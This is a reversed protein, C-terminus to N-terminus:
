ADAERRRGEGHVYPALAERLMLRARHVRVKLASESIGLEAAAEKTSLGEVERLVFATRLTDPLAAIARDVMERLEAGIVARSPETTRDVLAQPLPSRRQLQEELDVTVPRRRRLHMLATNTVIRHLWTGLESRGQFADVHACAQIVSEQLVGEAEDPDGMLRVALQYLRPAFRKVLCTCALRDRRRLGELLALEDEYIALDIDWPKM